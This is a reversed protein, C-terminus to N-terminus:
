LVKLIDWTEQFGNDIQFYEWPYREINAVVDDKTLKTFFHSLPSDIGYEYCRDGFFYLKDHPPLLSMVQSKNCTTLCIDISVEGGLYADFRPFMRTFKKIINIRDNFLKDFRSYLNRDEESANKGVISFNVSGKRIDIHPGFKKSFPHEKVLTELFDLEEPKLIFQNISKEFGDIWINNGMCHFSIKCKDTLDKGLQEITKERNSGTIFCFEKNSIFQTFWHKFQPDIKQGRDCLVGDVDFLFISNM